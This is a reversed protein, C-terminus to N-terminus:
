RLLQLVLQPLTNAQALMAITSQMKIQLTTFNTMEEAYDTNRIVNEAQKTNDYAVKQADFISQLNNIVAGIQSRINDVTRLAMDAILMGVEAGENTNVDISYLNKFQSGTDSGIVFDGLRLGTVTTTTTQTVTLNGVLVASATVSSAGGGLEASTFIQFNAGHLLRDLHITAETINAGTAQVTVEVGITYGRSSTLVLNNADGISATLDAGAAHAATNIQNVLDILTINLSLNDITFSTGGVYFTINASASGTPDDLTVTAIGDATYSGARSINTATASYTITTISGDPNTITSTPLANVADAVIGYDLLYFGSYAATSPVDNGFITM